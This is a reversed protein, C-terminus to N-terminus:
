PVQSLSKKRTIGEVDSYLILHCGPAGAPSSGRRTACFAATAMSTDARMFRLKFTNQIGFANGMFVFETTLFCNWLATFSYTIIWMERYLAFALKSYLQFRLTLLSKRCQQPNLLIKCLCMKKM